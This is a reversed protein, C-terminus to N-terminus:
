FHIEYPTIWHNEECPAVVYITRRMVAQLWLPPEAGPAGTFCYTGFSHQLPAFCRAKSLDPNHAEGVFSTQSGEHSALIIKTRFSALKARMFFEWVLIDANATGIRDCLYLVLERLHIGSFFMGSGGLGVHLYGEVPLKGSVIDLVGDCAVSDDDWLAVHTAGEMRIWELMM